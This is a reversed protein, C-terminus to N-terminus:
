INGIKQHAGRMRRNLEIQQQCFNRLGPSGGLGRQFFSQFPYKAGPFPEFIMNKIGPLRFFIQLEVPLDREYKQDAM